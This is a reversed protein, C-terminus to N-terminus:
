LNATEVEKIVVMRILQYILWFRSSDFYGTKRLNILCDKQLNVAAEREIQLALCFGRELVARRNSEYEWDVGLM